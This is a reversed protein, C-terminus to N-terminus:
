DDVRNVKDCKNIQRFIYPVDQDFDHVGEWSYGSSCLKRYLPRDRYECSIELDIGHSLFVLDSARTQHLESLAALFGDSPSYACSHSESTTDYRCSEKGQSPMLPLEWGMYAKEGFSGTCLIIAALGDFVVFKDIESVRTM